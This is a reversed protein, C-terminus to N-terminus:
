GDLLGERPSPDNSSGVRTMGAPVIAYAPGWYGGVLSPLVHRHGSPAREQPSSVHLTHLPHTHMTPGM